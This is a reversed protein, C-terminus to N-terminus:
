IVPCSNAALSSGLLMMSSKTVPAERFVVHYVMPGISHVCQLVRKVEEGEKLTADSAPM